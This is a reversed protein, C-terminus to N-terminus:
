SRRACSASNFLERALRQNLKSLIEEESPAEEVACAVSPPLKTTPLPVSAQIKSPKLHFLKWLTVWLTRGNMCSRCQVQLAQCTYTSVCTPRHRSKPVWSFERYPKLYPRKLSLLRPKSIASPVECRLQIHSWEPCLLAACCVVATCCGYTVKCPKDRSM